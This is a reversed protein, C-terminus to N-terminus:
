RKVITLGFQILNDSGINTKNNVRNQFPLTHKAIVTNGTCTM